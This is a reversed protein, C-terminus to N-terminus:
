KMCFLIKKNEEENLGYLSLSAAVCQGAWVSLLRSVFIRKCFFLFNLDFLVFFGFIM